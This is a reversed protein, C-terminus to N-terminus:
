NEHLENHAQLIGNNKSHQIKCTQENHDIKRGISELMAAKELETFKQFICPSDLEFSKHILKYKVSSCGSFGIAGIILILRKLLKM